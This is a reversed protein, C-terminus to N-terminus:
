QSIVTKRLIHILDIDFEEALEFTLGANYNPLVHMYYVTKIGKQKILKICEKCPLHTVALFEIEDGPRCYNLANAEAHIVRPRRKDRDSWDIDVGSPAGNYGLIFSKDKKVAVAGVQVYPDECRLDAIQEALILSTTIWDYRNRGNM